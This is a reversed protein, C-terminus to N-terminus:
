YYLCLEQESFQNQAIEVVQGVGYHPHVILDGVKFQGTSQIM